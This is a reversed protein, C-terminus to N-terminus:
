LKRKLLYHIQNQINTQDANSNGELNSMNQLRQQTIIEDFNQM